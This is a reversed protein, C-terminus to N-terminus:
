VLFEAILITLRQRAVHTIEGGDFHCFVSYELIFFELDWPYFM